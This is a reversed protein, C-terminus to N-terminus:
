PPPLRSALLRALGAEGAPKWTPKGGPLGLDGAHGIDILILCRLLAWGRARRVAAADAPAYADFFREAAGSPLLLWAAALDIAPDGSSLDGFDIVGALTGDSVVVNAPHLDGHLWVAPRDWAPATVADSWVERMRTIDSRSAAARLHEEAEGAIDALPVGRGPSDPANDPAEQHLATLFGALAEAAQPGRCVPTRDAPEGAVWTTVLWTEPFSASPTGLRVPVPVPLPLRPALAPLWRHESRLLTPARPTRPLRVALDEGLRWMRNDWGGDVPRLELGALDPHQADLLSRVLTEDVTLDEM